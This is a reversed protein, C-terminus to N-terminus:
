LISIYILPVFNEIRTHSKRLLGSCSKVMQLYLVPVLLWCHYLVLVSAIHALCGVLDKRIRRINGERINEDIEGVKVTVSTAVRIKTKDRKAKNRRKTITCVPFSKTSM